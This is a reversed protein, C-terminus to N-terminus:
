SRCYDIYQFYDELSENTPILRKILNGIVMSLHRQSEDFNPTSVMEDNAVDKLREFFYKNPDETNQTYYEFLVQFLNNNMNDYSNDYCFRIMCWLAYEDNCDGIRLRKHFLFSFDSLSEYNKRHVKSM